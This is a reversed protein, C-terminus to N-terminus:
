VKLCWLQDALKGVLSKHSLCIRSTYCCNMQRDLGLLRLNTLWNNKQSDHVRRARHTLASIILLRCLCISERAKIEDLVRNPCHCRNETIIIHQSDNSVRRISLNHQPRSPHVLLSLRANLCSKLINLRIRLCIDKLTEAM